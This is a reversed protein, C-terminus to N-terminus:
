IEVKPALAQPLPPLEQDWGSVFISEKRSISFM